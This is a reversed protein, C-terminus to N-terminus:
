NTVDGTLGLLLEGNPAAAKGVEQQMGHDAGSGIDTTFRRATEIQLTPYIIWISREHVLPLIVQLNRSELLAM